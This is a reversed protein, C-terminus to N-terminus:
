TTILITFEAHAESISNNACHDAQVSLGLCRVSQNNFGYTHQAWM